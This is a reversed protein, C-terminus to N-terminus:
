QKLIKIVSGQKPPSKLNINNWALVDELEVKYLNSLDALSQGRELRHLDYASLSIRNDTNLSSNLSLRIERYSDVLTSSPKKLIPLEQLAEMYRLKRIAIDNHVGSSYSYVLKNLSADNDLYNYMSSEPLTLFYGAPNKPIYSKLYSPNLASITEKALGIEASLNKFSIHDFVKATATFRYEDEPLEPQLDYDHYYNMIYSAAVFRPIYKRTEKPLYSRIGWYDKKGSRRMAKRVNGPGCNYAALALTWDDFQNYLDSLYNLAAETAKIPDRREDVTNNIKLGYSKGTGKMFQWLGAAGTRSYVDSRLNSEVIALYKLEDPLNSERLKHEIFPFHISVRGLLSESGNRHKTTYNRICREAEKTLKLDVESTINRLRNEILVNDLGNADGSAHACFTQICFFVLVFTNKHFVKNNM